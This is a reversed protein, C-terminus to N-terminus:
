KKKRKQKKVVMFDALTCDLSADGTSKQKLLETWITPMKTFGYPNAELYERNIGLLRRKSPEIGHMRSDICGGFTNGKIAHNYQCSMIENVVSTRENPDMKNIGSRSRGIMQGDAHANCPRLIVTIKIKASPDKALITKLAYLRRNDFSTFGGDPMLVIQLPYHPNWGNKLIDRVLEDLSEGTSLTPAITVQSFRIRNVTKNDITIPKRLKILNNCVTMYNGM